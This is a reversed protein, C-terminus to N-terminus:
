IAAGNKGCTKKQASEVVHLQKASVEADEEEEAGMQGERAEDTM